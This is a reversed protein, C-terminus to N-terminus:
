SLEMETEGVRLRDGRKLTRPGSVRDGNVYTGNTSGLDDVLVSGDRDFVRAHLQSAYSDDIRIHCGAARGITIESSVAFREGVRESPAVVVLTRRKGAARGGSRGAATTTAAASASSAPRAPAPTRLETGVAWLVRVFFLYLLGLLCFKLVTLVDDSM